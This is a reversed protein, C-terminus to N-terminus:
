YEKEKNVVNILSDNKLYRRINEKILEFSRQRNNDSPGAVHPTIFVNSAKNLVSNKKLPEPDTVDLGIGRFKLYINNKLLDKTNVIKGRSINIFISKKKMKKFFNYDLMHKTKKTLPAACVIVDYNKAIENLNGTLYLKNIFSLFPTLDNSIADVIAGFAKLREAINIGIGGLGIILIKKDKLEIPRDFKSSDKNKSIQYLNRTFSLILGLAHDAVEPGQIIKGNTFIIKSKSFKDSLYGEIGAGGAHIWDLHKFHNFNSNKFVHRPCGIMVNVKKVNKLIEEKSDSTFFIKNNKSIKLIEKKWEKKFSPTTIILIEKKKKLTM